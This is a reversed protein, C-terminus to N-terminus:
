DDVFTRLQRCRNPHKLTGLAKAEIQRIRERTLGFQQGIEELTHDATKDIGFRMRLVKAERPRLGSLGSQVTERLSDLVAWDLPSPQTDEIVDAIQTYDDDGVPSPIALGDSFRGALPEDDIEEIEYLSVLTKEAQIAKKVEEESLDVRVAIERTTPERGLLQWLRRVSRNVKDVKEVMHVPVRITRSQDAVARTISQRIWWTAYTSFKFGRKHDFRDVARMLGVNGEQILDAFRLGRRVYKKAISAVLRLNAEIMEHKARYTKAEGIAIEGAINKIEDLSLHTCREIEALNAQEVEIKPRLAALAVSYTPTKRIHENVWVVNSENGPFCIVFEAYPMGAHHVCYQMIAREHLRIEEVLKRVQAALAGLVNPALRLELLEDALKRRTENPTSDSTGRSDIAKLLKTYGDALSAFRRAVEDPDPGYEFGDLETENGAAEDSDDDEQEAKSLELDIMTALEPEDSEGPLGVILDLIRGHGCKIREYTNLIFEYSPPFAALAQRVIDVGEEIRKAIAIEGKRRLLKFQRIERLYLQVSQSEFGSADIAARSQQDRISIAVDNAGSDTDDADTEVNSESASDDEPARKYVPIGLDRTTQAISTIQKNTANESPLRESIQDYTLFGQEKGLAIIARLHPQLAAWTAVLAAGECKEPPQAENPEDSQLDLAAEIDRVLRNVEILGHNTSRAAIKPDPSMRPRSPNETDAPM